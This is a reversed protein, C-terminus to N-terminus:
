AREAVASAHFGETEDLAVLRGLLLEVDNTVENDLETKLLRQLALVLPVWWRERVVTDLDAPKVSDWRDTKWLFYAFSVVQLYFDMDEKVKNLLQTPDLDNLGQMAPFLVDKVKKIAGTNAFVNTQRMTHRAIASPEGDIAAAAGTIEEKLWSVAVGKVSAYECNKLIDALIALRDNHDPNSHFVQGALAMAANRTLIRPHYLGILSSRHIFKMYGSPVVEDEEESPQETSLTPNAITAQPAASIRDCAQLWLGIAVLAELVGVSNFVLDAPDGEDLFQCVIDLQDPLIDMDPTPQDADFIISSFIWYAILVICGGTSLDIDEPKVADELKELPTRHVPGQRLKDIFSRPCSLLGLDTILAVLQGVLADRAQLHTEYRFAATATMRGPGPVIKEPNYYEYLRGAWTMDNKTTYAELICTVFSLLMKQQLAAETPDDGGDKDAEPDPANKSADGDQDPNAVNVSSKRSPLPPRRRGSLKHVLNIVAATMEEDPDKQYARFVAALTDAFFRSPYKAKIRTYQIALINLLTLFKHTFSVEATAPLKQNEDDGQDGDEANLQNLAENVKLIVDRPNGVRAITELCRDSGPLKVLKDVLDWGITQTLEVDELIKELEPIIEPSLHSEIITLYTFPDTAPPRADRLATIAATTDTDM